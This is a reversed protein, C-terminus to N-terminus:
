GLNPGAPVPPPARAQSVVLMVAPVACWAWMAASISTGALRDPTVIVARDPPKAKLSAVTQHSRGTGGMTWAFARRTISLGSANRMATCPPLCSRSATRGPERIRMVPRCARSWNASMSALRDPGTASASARSSWGRRLNSDRPPISMTSGDPATRACSVICTGNSSPTVMSSMGTPALACSVPMWRPRTTAPRSRSRAFKDAFTVPFPRAIAPCPETAPMGALSARSM